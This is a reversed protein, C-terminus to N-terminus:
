EEEDPMPPPHGEKFRRAHEGMKEHLKQFQELTLIERMELIGKLRTDERQTILSKLEAQLANIKDMDLQEKQLEAGIAEKKQRIEEQLAKAKEMMTKKHEEIKKQQEETLSLEKAMEEFREGKHSWPGKKEMRMGREGRESIGKSPSMAGRAPQASANLSLAGTLFCVACLVIVYRKIM